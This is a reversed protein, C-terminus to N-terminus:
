RRALSEALKLQSGITAKVASDVEFSTRRPALFETAPRLAKMLGDATHAKSALLYHGLEHALARGLARSLLTRLELVTMRSVAAGGESGRVLALANAYSLHIERTPTGSDNFTIWGMPLGRDRGPGPDEDITVRLVNARSVVPSVPAPEDRADEAIQWAFTVDAARWIAAAEELAQVIVARPINPAARVAVGIPPIVTAAAFALATLM